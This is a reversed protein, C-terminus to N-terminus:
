ATDKMIEQLIRIKLVRKDSILIAEGIKKQKKNAFFLNEM